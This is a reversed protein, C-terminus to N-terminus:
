SIYHSKKIVTEPDIDAQDKLLLLVPQRASIATLFSFLLPLPLLHLGHTLLLLLHLLLDNMFLTHM